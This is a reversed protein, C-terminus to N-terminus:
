HLDWWNVNGDGYIVARGDVVGDNNLDYGQYLISDGFTTGWVRYAAMDLAQRVSEPICTGGVIESCGYLLQKYFERVFMAGAQDVGGLEISLYPARGNFGIFVLGSPNSYPNRYGDSSLDSTHLWALPMGYPTGSWHFGGIENGQHCSWLFALRTSTNLSYSYIDKDFVENGSDDYILYQLERYWIWGAWNWVYKKDGHGIYFIAVRSDGVGGAARYINDRTTSAGYWNYVVFGRGSFNGAIDNAVSQATLVEYYDVQYRSGLIIATRAYVCTPIITIAFIIIVILISVTKDVKKM